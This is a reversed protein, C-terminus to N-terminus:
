HRLSFMTLGLVRNHLMPSIISVPLYGISEPPFFGIETDSQEGCIGCPKVLFQVHIDANLHQRRVAEAM